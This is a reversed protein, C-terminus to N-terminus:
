MLSVYIFKRIYMSHLHYFRNNSTTRRIFVQRWIKKNEWKTVILEALSFTYCRNMSLKFFFFFEVYYIYRHSFVWYMVIIEKTRWRSFFFRHGQDFYQFFISCLSMDSKMHVNIFLFFAFSLFIFFRFTIPHYWKTMRSSQFMFLNLSLIVVMEIINFEKKIITSKRKKNM